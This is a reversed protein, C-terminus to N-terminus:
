REQLPNWFRKTFHMKLYEERRSPELDCHTKFPCLFCNARNKPWVKKTAWGEMQGLWYQLDELLEERHFDSRYQLGIGFRAGGVQTQVADIAVGKFKMEPFLVNGVLDYLDIQINPSYQAFYRRDLAGKTTKNDAIFNESGHSAAADGLYGALVFREGTAAMLPLPMQFNFEVAPTGNPFRLPFLGGDSPTEPQDDCWWTLARILTKRNKAPNDAVFEAVTVTDSGCTGCVDPAPGPINVGKHSWPCKARNGKANKYKATGSCHWVTQHSGGWPYGDGKDQTEALVTRLAAFTAEQKSKGNLREKRYTENGRAFYIGFEADVSSGGGWGDLYKLKYQTPCTMVSKLTSADIVLQLDPTVASFLAPNRALVDSM